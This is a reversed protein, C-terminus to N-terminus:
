ASQAAKACGQVFRAMKELTACSVDCSSAALKKTYPVGLEDLVCAVVGSCVSGPMKGELERAPLRDVLDRAARKVANKTRDDLQAQAVLNDVSRNILDGADLGKALQPAYAAGTLAKRFQKATATLALVTVGLHAFMSAVEKKSRGVGNGVMKTATYLAAAGYLHWESTRITRRESLDRCLVKATDQVDKSFRHGMREICDFLKRLALHPDPNSMVRRRHPVNDLVVPQEPLIWSAHPGARPGTEESYYEMRDSFMHAEVVVGCGRCVVEGRAYDTVLDPTGCDCM